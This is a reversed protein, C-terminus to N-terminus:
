LWLVMLGSVSGEEYDDDEEGRAQQALRAKVQDM